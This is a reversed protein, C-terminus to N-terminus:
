CSLHQSRRALIMDKRRGRLFIYGRENLAALDGPYFWGDRFAERSADADRYYGEAVGPGRYRLLGVQGPRCRMTPMMWSKWKWQFYRVGWPILIARTIRPLLLSIGGGETSAYYEFFNRCLRHKIDRRESPTLPAGSSILLDLKRM